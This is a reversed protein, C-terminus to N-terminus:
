GEVVEILTEVPAGGTPPAISLRVQRVSAEKVKGSESLRGEKPNATSARPTPAALSSERAHSTSLKRSLAPALKTTVTSIESALAAFEMVAANEHYGTDYPNVNVIMVARGRGEFFEQFLETLKSMRYPPIETRVVKGAGGVAGLGVGGVAGAGMPVGAKALRRQNNRLIRMCQGLVMLSSNIKNAEDMRDGTAQTNKNRESGALDVISLRSTDITETDKEVDRRIREVRVACVAHSRSSEKNAVTGFVRRNVQGMAIVRKAESASKVHVETLNAIYKAVGGAASRLPLAQRTITTPTISPRTSTSSALASQALNPRSVSGSVSRLGLAPNASTTSSSSNIWSFPNLHSFSTQLFGGGAAGKNSTSATIGSTRVKASKPDTSSTTSSSSTNLLDFIQNNYIEAYSIFVRYEDWPSDIPVVTADTSGDQSQESEELLSKVMADEESPPTVTGSQEGDKEANNQHGEISNFVVDITRPLIGGRDEGGKGQITYTKGSNTVGYAFILGNEGNLLDKVLPLTTAQFLDSQTTEAPFAKTFSFTQKRSSPNPVRISAMGSFISSPPIMEAETNSILTLYPPIPSPDSSLDPRVRLYSKIPERDEPKSAVVPRLAKRTAALMTAGSKPDSETTPSAGAPPTSRDTLPRLKKTILESIGNGSAPKPKTSSSANLPGSTSATRSSRTVRAPAATASTKEISSSSAGTTNPTGARTRTSSRTAM